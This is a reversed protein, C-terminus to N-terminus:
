ADCEIRVTVNDKLRLDMRNIEAQPITIRYRPHTLIYHPTMNLTGKNEVDISVSDVYWTDRPIKSAIDDPINICLANKRLRLLRSNFTFRAM